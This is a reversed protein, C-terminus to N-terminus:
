VYIEYFFRATAYSKERGLSICFDDFVPAIDERKLAYLKVRDRRNHPSLNFRDLDVMMVGGPCEGRWLGKGFQNTSYQVGDITFQYYGTSSRRIPSIVLLKRM